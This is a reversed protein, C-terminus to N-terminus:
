SWKILLSIVRSSFHDYIVALSFKKAWSSLNSSLCFFHNQAKFYQAFSHVKRKKSNENRLLDRNKRDENALLGRELSTRPNIRISLHILTTKWPLFKSPTLLSQKKKTQKIKTEWSKPIKKEKQSGQANLTATRLKQM